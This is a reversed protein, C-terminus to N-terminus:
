SDCSSFPFRTNCQIMGTFFMNVPYIVPKGVPILIITVPTPSIRSPLTHLQAPCITSPDIRVVHDIHNQINHNLLVFFNHSLNIIRGYSTGVLNINFAALGYAFTHVASNTFGQIKCFTMLIYLVGSDIMFHNNVHIDDFDANLKNLICDFTVVHSSALNRLSTRNSSCSNGVCFISNAIISSKTFFLLNPINSLIIVVSHHIMASVFLIEICALISAIIGIYVLIRLGPM